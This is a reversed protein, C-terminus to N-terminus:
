RVLLWVASVLTIVIALLGLAIGGDGWLSWAGVAIGVALGMLGKEVDFM